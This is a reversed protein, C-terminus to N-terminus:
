IKELEFANNKSIFLSGDKYSFPMQDIKRVQRWSNKQSYMPMNLKKLHKYIKIANDRTGVELIADTNERLTKM